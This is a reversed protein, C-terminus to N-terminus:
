YKHNYIKKLIYFIYFTLNLTMKSKDEVLDNKKGIIKNKQLNFIRYEFIKLEEKQLNKINIKKHNHLIYIQISSRLSQIIILYIIQALFTNLYILIQNNLNVEHKSLFFILLLFNIASSILFNKILQDLFINQLIIHSFFLIFLSFFFFFIIIM